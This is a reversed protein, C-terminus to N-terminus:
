VREVKRSGLGAELELSAKRSNIAEMFVDSEELEQLIRPLDLEKELLAVSGYSEKRTELLFKKYELRVKKNLAEDQSQGDPLIAIITEVAALEALVGQLDADLELSTEAFRTVLREDSLKKFNLDAKERAAMSLLVNCDAVSNLNQVSYM